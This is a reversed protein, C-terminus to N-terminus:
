DTRVDSIEGMEVDGFVAALREDDGAAGAVLAGGLRSSSTTSEGTDGTDGTTTGVMSALSSESVHATTTVHESGGLDPAAPVALDVHVLLAM